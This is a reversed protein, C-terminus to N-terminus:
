RPECIVLPIDRETRRQYGEYDPWEAIVKPWLERKEEPTATRARMKHVDGRDQIMVDPNAALNHYWHPHKPAGGQSAVVLYNDGDRIRILPTKRPKGTRKGTTTLVIVKAGKLFEYGDAGDSALYRRVHNAARESTSPLYDTDSM